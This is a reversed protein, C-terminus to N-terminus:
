IDEEHRFHNIKNVSTRYVTGIHAHKDSKSLGIESDSPFSNIRFKKGILNTCM